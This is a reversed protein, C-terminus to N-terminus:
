WGCILLCRCSVDGRRQAFLRVRHSHQRSNQVEPATGMGTARGARWQITSYRWLLRDEAPPMNNLAMQVGSKLAKKRLCSTTPHTSPPLTTPTLVSLQPAQQTAQAELVQMWDWGNSLPTVLCGERPWRTGWM